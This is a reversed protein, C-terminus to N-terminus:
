EIEISDGLPQNEYAEKFWDTEPMKRYREKLAKKM